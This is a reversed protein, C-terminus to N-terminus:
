VNVAPPDWVDAFSKPENEDPGGADVAFSKPANEPPATEAELPAGAEIDFSSSKPENEALLAGAAAAVGTSEPSLYAANEIASGDATGAGAVTIPPLSTPINAAPPTAAAPTPAAHNYFRRRPPPPVALGWFRITPRKHDM